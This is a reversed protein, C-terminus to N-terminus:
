LTGRCTAEFQIIQFPTGKNKEPYLVGARFPVSEIDLRPHVKELGLLEQKIALAKRRADTKAEAVSLDPPVPLEITVFPNTKFDFGTNSTRTWEDDAVGDSVIARPMEVYDPDEPDDAARHLVIRSATDGEDVSGAELIPDVEAWSLAPNAFIGRVSQCELLMAAMREEPLTVDAWVM